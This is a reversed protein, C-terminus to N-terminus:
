YVELEAIAWPKTSDDIVTVRIFRANVARPFTAVSAGPHGEGVFQLTYPLGHDGATDIRYRPPEGGDSPHAQRVNQFHCVCGLDILVWEGKRQERTSTAATRSDGDTLATRNDLTTHIQWTSQDSVQAVYKPDIRVDRLRCADKPDVRLMDPEKRVRFEPGCGWVVVLLVGVAIPKAM